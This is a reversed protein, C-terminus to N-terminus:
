IIVFNCVAGGEYFLEIRQSTGSSLSPIFSQVPWESAHVKEKYKNATVFPTGGARCEAGLAVGRLRRGSLSLRAWSVVGEGM